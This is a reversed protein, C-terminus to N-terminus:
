EAGPMGRCLTSVAMGHLVFLLPFSIAGLGLFIARAVVRGGFGSYLIFPVAALVFVVLGFVPGVFSAGRIRFSMALILPGTVAGWVAALAIIQLTGVLTFRPDEPTTFALARM